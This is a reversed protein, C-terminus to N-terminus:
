AAVGREARAVPVDANADVMRVEAIVVAMAPAPRMLVMMVVVVRLIMM